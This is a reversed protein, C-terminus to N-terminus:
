LIMACCIIVGILILTGIYGCAYWFRRKNPKPEPPPPTTEIPTYIGKISTPNRCIPCSARSTTKWKETCAEHMWVRCECTFRYESVNETELCIICPDM